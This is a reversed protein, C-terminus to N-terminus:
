AVAKFLMESLWVDLNDSSWLADTNLVTTVRSTSFDSLTTTTSVPTATRVPEPPIVLGAVSTQPAQFRATAFAAELPLLESARLALYEDQGLSQDTFIPFTLKQKAKQAIAFGADFRALAFSHGNESASGAVVIKGNDPQIAVGYAEDITGVFDANVRGSIGFTSDLYGDTTLRAVAFRKDQGTASFEATGALVIKGNAQLV